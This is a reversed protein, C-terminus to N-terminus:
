AADYSVHVEGLLRSQKVTTLSIDVDSCSDQLQLFDLSSKWPTLDGGWHRPYIGVQIERLRPFREKSCEKVHNIIHTLVVCSATCFQTLCLKEVNPPLLECVYRTNLADEWDSYNSSSIRNGNLLYHAGLSVDKLKPFSVLSTMPAM